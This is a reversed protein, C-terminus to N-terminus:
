LVKLTIEFILCRLLRVHYRWKFYISYISPQTILLVHINPPHLRHRLRRRELPRERCHPILTLSPHQRPALLPLPLILMLLLIFHNIPPRQFPPPVISQNFSQDTTIPSLFHNKILIFCYKVFIINYDKQGTIIYHYIILM